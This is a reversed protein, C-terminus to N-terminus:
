RHFYVLAAIMLGFYICTGGIVVRARRSLLPTDLSARHTAREAAVMLAGGLVILLGAAGYFIRIDFDM